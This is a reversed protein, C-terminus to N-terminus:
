NFFYFILFVADYVFSLHQKSIKVHFGIIFYELKSLTKDLDIIFWRFNHLNVLKGFALWSNFGLFKILIQNLVRTFFTIFIVQKFNLLMDLILDMLVLWLKLLNLYLAYFFLFYDSMLLGLICSIEFRLWELLFRNKTM